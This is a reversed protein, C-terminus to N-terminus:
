HPPETLADGARAAIAPEAERWLHRLRAALGAAEGPRGAERLLEWQRLLAPGTFPVDPGEALAALWALAQDLRGTTALAEARLFRDLAQSFFPSIAIRELPVALPEEDLLRLTRAPDGRRWADHADLSTGLGRALALADPSRGTRMLDARHRRFGATDGLALRVMGLLYHRLHPHADAHVAFFFSANPTSASPDWAELDAAVRRLVATDRPFTPLLAALARLELAWARELREATALHGGAARPRGRALELQALVIEGAARWDAPRERGILLRAIRMAAELDRLHAGARAAAIIVAMPEATRLQALSSDFAAGAGWGAARVAAWAPAQESAPDVAALLHHFTASDARAAALELLHFRAEGYDPALALVRGFPDSAEALPRGRVPNYHLRVEGLGSWAEVESPAITLIEEYLREARDAEGHLLAHWAALLRQHHASLREGHQLASAASQRAQVFDFSWEAAASLRYHALAFSPDERLALRFAAAAAAYRAARFEREGQLYARLAPLSATTLTAIRTLRDGPGGTRGRVLQRALDDVMVFVDGIAGEAVAPIVDDGAGHLAATIRLSGGAEVVTGTLYMSAGFRRVVGRAERETMPKGIPQRVSGLLAHPDVTRLDGAGNLSASLLSALGDALYEYDASGHVVFPLVALNAVAASGGSPATPRARAWFAALGAIALIVGVTAVPRVHRRAHGRRPRAPVTPGAHSVISAAGSTAPAAADGPEVHEFVAPENPVVAVGAVGADPTSALRLRTTGAAAEDPHAAADGVGTAPTPEARLLATYAVLAPDPQAGFEEELLAAHVRAHQLAAAREGAAVLSEMLRLAVRGNYPDHEALRRWAAAAARPEPEAQEAIRELTDAYARALRDREGDAWHEFEPADSIFFGDMFPGAYVAAADDLDGSSRADEFRVVDSDVLAENLRVDDGSTLLVEEGLERRLVYLSESLLRRARDGEAEPWLYGILKDRSLPRRTTALLALLALRRRQASRGIVPGDRGELTAGGFLRLLM